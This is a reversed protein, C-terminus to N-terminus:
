DDSGTSGGFGMAAAAFLYALCFASLLILVPRVVEMAPEFQCLDFALEDDIGISSGFPVGVTPCEGGPGWATLGSGIWCFVGFPFDNCGISVGALPSLDIAPIAPASWPTGAPVPADAPNTHVDIETETEPNVRTGSKPVTRIVGDPGTGPDTFEPSVTVRSPDLNPALRAIYADYTEGPLPSPVLVPMGAEDPNAEIVVPSGGEVTADAEPQLALVAGAPQSVDATEWTRFDIEPVLEVEELLDECASYGLGDCNPVDVYVALPNLAEAQGLQHNLFGNTVPYNATELEKKVDAEFAAQSPASGEPTYKPVTENGHEAGGTGEPILGVGAWNAPSAIGEFRVGQKEQVAPGGCFELAAAPSTWLISGPGQIFFKTCSGGSFDRNFPLASSTYVLGWSPAYLNEWGGFIQDGPGVLRLSTWPKVETGGSTSLDPDGSFVNWIQGGIEWGLWAASLAMSGRALAPLLRVNFAGTKQLLGNMEAHMAASNPLNKAAAPNMEAAWWGSVKPGTTIVGPISRPSHKAVWGAVDQVNGPKVAEKVPPDVFAAAGTPVAAM